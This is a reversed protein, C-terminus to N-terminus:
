AVLDAELRTLLDRYEKVIKRQILGRQSMENLIERVRRNGKYSSPKRASNSKVTIKKFCQHMISEVKKTWVRFPSEKHMIFSPDVAETIKEYDKLGDETIKWFSKKENKIKKKTCGKLLSFKAIMACHDSFTLKKSEGM